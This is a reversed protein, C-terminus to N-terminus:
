TNSGKSFRQVVVLVIVGLLTLLGMFRFIRDWPASNVVYQAMLFFIIAVYLLYQNKGPNM